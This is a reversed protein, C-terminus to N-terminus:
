WKHMKKMKQIREERANIFGLRTREREESDEITLLYERIKIEENAFDVRDRLMRIYQLVGRSDSLGQEKSFAKLHKLLEKDEKSVFYLMLQERM